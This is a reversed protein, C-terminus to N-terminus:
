FMAALLEDMNSGAFYDSLPFRSLVDRVADPRHAVGVLATEIEEVDRKGFYDGHIRVKRIIGDSVEMHIEFLGYPYLTSKEFSYKPSTGFNWEWTGYKERKLKEIAERDEATLNYLTAEPKEMVKDILMQEFDDLSLPQKLHEGINTVRSVVSKIGKSKIKLPNVKLANQLEGMSASFLLTGHHLIRGHWVYQANGSFKRDEIVLDNRGKLEAPIGLGRLVEIIPATFRAYNNFHGEGGNEIFTFNLNGLDHFVAGGGTLRRVVAIGKEQVYDYNIEALANQNKGIIIAPSNRWLMFIDESFNKLLYEETALNAYPDTCNNKIILM